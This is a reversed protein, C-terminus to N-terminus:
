LAIQWELRVLETVESTLRYKIEAVIRLRASDGLLWSSVFYIDLYNVILDVLAFM